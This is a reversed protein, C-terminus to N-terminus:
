EEHEKAEDWFKDMLELTPNEVGLERLKKEIHRFRSSFKENTKRLAMEANIGLFRALNTIAFILDGLESETQSSRENKAISEELEALEEHVKKLVDKIDEWDFGIRAAKEQMRQAVLLAPMSKPIGDLLSAHSSNERRERLKIQEWNHLIEETDKVKTEGFVHPHRRILKSTIGVIVDNIDFRGAEREIDAHFLVHLLIDGLEEKMADYDKSDIAEVLEYVEEIINPRLSEHTQERDWSCGGPARLKKVIEVLKEFLEGTEGDM